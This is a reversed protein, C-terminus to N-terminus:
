FHPLFFFCNRWHLLPENWRHVHTCACKRVMSHDSTAPLVEQSNNDKVQDAQLVSKLRLSSWTSSSFDFVQLFIWFCIFVNGM